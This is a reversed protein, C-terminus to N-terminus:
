AVRWYAAGRESLEAYKCRVSSGIELSPSAVNPSAALLSAFCGFFRGGSVMPLAAVGLCDSTTPVVTRLNAEFKRVTGPAAAAAFGSQNTGSVKARFRAPATSASGFVPKPSEGLVSLAPRPVPTGDVFEDGDARRDASPDGPGLVPWAARDRQVFARTALPPIAPGFM